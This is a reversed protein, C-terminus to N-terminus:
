KSMNKIGSRYWFIFCNIFCNVFFPSSLCVEEKNVEIEEGGDQKEQYVEEVEESTGKNKDRKDDREELM